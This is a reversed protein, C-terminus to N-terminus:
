GNVLNIGKFLFIYEALKATNVAHTAPTAIMKNTIKTSKNGLYLSGAFLITLTQMVGNIQIPLFGSKM